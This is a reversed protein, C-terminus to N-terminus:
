LDRDKLGSAFFKLIKKTWVTLTISSKAAIRKLPFPVSTSWCEDKRDLIFVGDTRQKM